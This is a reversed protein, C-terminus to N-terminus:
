TCSADAATITPNVPASPTSGTPGEGSRVGDFDDGLVLTLVGTGSGSPELTATPVAAALTQAAVAQDPSYRITTAGGTPTASGAPETVVGFGAARLREAISLATPGAAAAWDSRRDDDSDGDDEDDRDEESRADASEGSREDDGGDDASRADVLRVEAAMPAPAAPAGPDGPLPRDEIIASFLAREEGPRLVENGRDNAIGTTPVTVFTVTRPDLSGLSQTLTLLQDSGINEGFTSRSVAAVLGELRSPDLLTGASLVSRLLAGLFRQQRQIRGYDSSPDGQVHRARVYDLAQQGTLVTPGAQPLIEGLVSDRVPRETCIPVGGVADVMGQFGQFDVGLFRNIALGSLEQVTRTVCRPGGAAYASNLKVRPAPPLVQPTYAGTVPDWRECAPRTIELDRPFSVVIVGSRDEPVHVIMITDTRAGPVDATDGADESAPAGARTDSGVVLFNQDGVQAAADQIASSNPDLAGIQRVAAEVWSAAGWGLGCVVVVLVACAATALRAVRRWTWRRRWTALRSGAAALVASTAAWDAERAPAAVARQREEAPAATTAPAPVDDPGADRPAPDAPSTPPAPATPAGPSASTSAAASAAGSRPAPPPTGESDRPAPALPVPPHPRELQAPPPAPPVVPPVPRTPPVSPDDAEAAPPTAATAVGATPEPEDREGDPPGPERVTTPVRRVPVRGAPLTVADVPSRTSPPDAAAPSPIGSSPTSPAAPAGSGATATPATVLAAGPPRLGLRPGRRRTLPVMTPRRGHHPAAVPIRFPASAPGSVPPRAADGGTTAPRPGRVPDGARDDTM